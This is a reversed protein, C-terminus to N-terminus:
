RGDVAQRGLAPDDTFFGDIGAALYARIEAVAGADSRQAPNSGHQFDAALFHNEPGFTYPWVQLGAAHALSVLATPRGLRRDAALPIISRIPPGIADAYGAIEGLGAATMLEGYSRAPDDALAQQPAALLQLLAINSGSGLKGRLYRLNDTEFSQIVVPAQRTYAHAQLTALLKDEIALGLSQFYHSHKIEPAIGITRGYVAAQAAVFDIVEDLTLLQFQGDLGTGRLQPLRQRARLLKLEDLSFDESFWGEIHKGDIVKSTKREAFQQHTAVDTTGGIENEHRVLLVGDRTAVLDPEIFDAGDIIAKAYAAMTHEPYLASAGRHAYVRAKEPAQAQVIQLCSVALLMLSLIIKSIIM